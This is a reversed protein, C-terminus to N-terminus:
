TSDSSTAAAIVTLGSTLNVHVTSDGEGPFINEAVCDSNITSSCTGDGLQGHTNVGWCQMSGNDTVVCTHSGIGDLM